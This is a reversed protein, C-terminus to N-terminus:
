FRAGAASQRDAVHALHGAARDDHGGVHHARMPDAHEAILEARRQARRRRHDHRPRRRLDVGPLAVPCHHSPPGALVANMDLIREARISISITPISRRRQARPGVASIAPAITLRACCRSPMAANRFPVTHWRRLLGPLTKGGSRRPWREKMKQHRAVLPAARCTRAALCQRCSRFDIRTKKRVGPAVGQRLDALYLAVSQKPGLLLVAGLFRCTSARPSCIVIRSSM